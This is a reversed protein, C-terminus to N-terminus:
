LYLPIYFPVRIALPRFRLFDRCDLVARASCFIPLVELRLAAHPGWIKEAPASKIHSTEQWM